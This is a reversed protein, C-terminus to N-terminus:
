FIFVTLMAVISYIDSLLRTGYIIWEVIYAINNPKKKKM